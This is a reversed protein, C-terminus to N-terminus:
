GNQKGGKEIKERLLIRGRSLRSKITGEKEDLIDMIEKISLEEFYFLILVEKYIHDLNFLEKRLVERDIIDLVEQEVMEDSELFEDLLFFDNSTRLKDKSINLAIRYIWTYLSSKGKFKDINNFLRLYTEQVVDEAEKEDKLILYCTKFLRNGYLDLVDEYAKEDRRKLRKILDRETNKGM